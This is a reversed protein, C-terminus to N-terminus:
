RKHQVSVCWAIEVFGCYARPQVALICAVRSIGPFISTDGKTFHFFCEKSPTCNLPSANGAHMLVQAARLARFALSHTPHSTYVNAFM